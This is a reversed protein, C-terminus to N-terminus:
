RYAQEKKVSSKPIVHMLQGNRTAFYHKRGDEARYFAHAPSGHFFNVKAIKLGKEANLGPVNM